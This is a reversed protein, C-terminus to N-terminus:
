FSKEMERRQKVRDFKEKKIMSEKSKQLDVDYQIRTKLEEYKLDIYKYLWDFGIKLSQDM